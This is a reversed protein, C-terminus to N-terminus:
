EPKLIKIIEEANKHCKEVENNLEYNNNELIKNEKKLETNEKTIEEIIKKCENLESIAESYTQLNQESSNPNSTIHNNWAEIVRSLSQDFSINPDIINGKSIYEVIKEIINEKESSRNIGNSLKELTFLYDSSVDIISNFKDKYEKMTKIKEPRQNLFLSRSYNSYSYKNFIRIGNLLTIEQSNLLESLTEYAEDLNEFSQNSMAYYQGDNEVLCLLRIQGNESKKVIIYDFKQNNDTYLWSRDSKYHCIFLTENLITDADNVLNDKFNNLKKYIHKSFVNNTNNNPVIFKTYFSYENEYLLKLATTTDVEDLGLQTKIDDFNKLGLLHPLNAPTVFYKVREGNGLYMEYYKNYMRNNEYFIVCEKIKLLIQELETRQM